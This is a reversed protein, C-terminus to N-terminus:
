PKKRGKRQMEDYEAQLRKLVNRGELGTLVEFYGSLFFREVEKRSESEPKSDLYDRRAQGVIARVLYEAGKPHITKNM